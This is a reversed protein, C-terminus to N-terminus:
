RSAELDLRLWARARQWERQATRLPLGLTAATEAETLGAFVRLEVLRVLQPNIEELRELADHVRELDTAGVDLIHVGTDLPLHVIGEGRKGANAARHQDIVLQRMARACVAFFHERDRAPTAASAALKMYAEHVLATTELGAPRGARLQSRAIRKLEAYLLEVLAPFASSDGSGYASFLRDLEVTGGTM